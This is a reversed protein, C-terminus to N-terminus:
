ANIEDVEICILVLLPPFMATVKKLFNNEEKCNSYFKDAITDRQNYSWGRERSNGVGKDEVKFM